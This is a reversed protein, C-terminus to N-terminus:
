EGFKISQISNRLKKEYMPFEEKTSNFNFIIMEKRYSAVLMINYIDANIANSTFELYAWKKGQIETVESKIWAVGPGIRDFTNKFYNVLEPLPVASIDNPKLDYAISTSTSENSVVWKPARKAPWKMDIFEQSLPNFKDPIVFSIDTGTISIEKATSTFTICILIFAFVLKM